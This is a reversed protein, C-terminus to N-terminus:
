VSNVDGWVGVEGSCQRESLIRVAASLELLLSHPYKTGEHRRLGLAMALIAAVSPWDFNKQRETFAVHTKETRGRM